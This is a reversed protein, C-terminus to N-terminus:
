SLIKSVIDNIVLEEKNENKSFDSKDYHYLKWKENKYELATLNEIWDGCNLYVVKGHENEM